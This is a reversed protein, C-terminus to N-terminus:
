TLGLEDDIYRMVEDDTALDFDATSDAIDPNGAIDPRGAQDLSNSRERWRVLVSELRATFKRIEPSEWSDALMAELQDITEM